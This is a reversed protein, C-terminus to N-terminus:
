SNSVIDYYANSTIRYVLSYFLAFVGFSIATALVLLPRNNMGFMLLIKYLFPFAFVLHLGAALIPLFFVTLMQSNINKRIDKRTMGVKQMIGFRSQDEFGESIQKYYIIIVTAALFVTGLLIALFFLGGNMTYLSSRSEAGCGCQFDAVAEGDEKLTQLSAKIRNTIEMHTPDDGELDFAYYWMLAAADEGDSELLPTVYEAFDPVCIVITPFVQADMGEFCFKPIVKTIVLEKADGVRITDQDYGSETTCLLTEGPSLAEKEGTLRNYEELSMIYIQYVQSYDSLSVGSVASVDTEVYADTLFGAIGAARYELINEPEAQSEAAAKAALNKLEAAQEAGMSALDKMELTMTSNRPYRNRIIDEEGVYLCTTASFMVLVMTSLICISALGAGNRKMRYSMSSVFVFHRPNYYYRKNKQLIKCIAVSGAVFLLYTGVIVMLVALFFMVFASIPNDISLATYYAWGLAAVGLLAVLWNAKPPKEGAHESHLLDITNTIRLQRLTNLFILLDILAFLAATLAVVDLPVTLAYTVPRHLLNLLGLEAFKSLLIGAALGAALSIGGTMVTEWFLVRAINGKDMGLINYLGFEMKRRRSLFASTYFLFILSFVGIVGRGLSLITRLLAGGRVEQVWSCDYLFAVIYFMMVMGICTLIYPLYLKKNKRMSTFALKPYLKKIM